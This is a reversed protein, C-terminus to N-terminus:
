CLWELAETVKHRHIIFDYHKTQDNSTCRVVLPVNQVQQPLVTAIREVNQAFNCIYKSGKRQGRRVTYITMVPNILAIFMEELQSLGKM